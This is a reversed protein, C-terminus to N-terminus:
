PRPRGNFRHSATMGDRFIESPLVSKGGEVRYLHCNAVEAAALDFIAVATGAGLKSGYAIGDCGANRFVEALV